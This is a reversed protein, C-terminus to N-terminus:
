ATDPTASAAPKLWDAAPRALLRANNYAMPMTLVTNGRYSEGQRSVVLALDASNPVLLAIPLLLQVKQAAPYWFPVATRYNRKARQVARKVAGDLTLRATYPNALPEPFRDLNDDVIHPSIFLDRRWDYLFDSPDETYTVVDPLASPPFYELIERDSRRRWGQFYWPQRGEHRNEGFLGFIDEQATTTLGSNFTSHQNDASVSLKGQACAREFTLKIYNRLIRLENFEASPDDWDEDEAMGALKDLYDPDGTGNQRDERSRVRGMYAFGYLSTASSVVPEPHASVRVTTDDSSERAELRKSIDSPKITQQHEPM